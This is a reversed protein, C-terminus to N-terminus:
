ETWMWMSGFVEKMFWLWAKRQNQDMEGLLSIAEDLILETVTVVSNLLDPDTVTCQKDIKIKFYNRCGPWLRVGPLTIVYYGAGSDSVKAYGLGSKNILHVQANVDKEDKM